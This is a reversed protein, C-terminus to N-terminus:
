APCIPTGDHCTAQKGDVDCYKGAACDADSRCGGAGPYVCYLGTVSGCCPSQVPACLGGPLATCDADVKCAAPVCARILRGLTGALGCIQDPACDADQACQDTACQNHPEMQVGGCFPVLPGQYCPENNPCPKDACCQDLDSACTTTKVPPTQCVHFGGPTIEVCKGDPCDADTHCDGNMSGGSGGTGSSSSASTSSSTTSSSSSTTTGGGTGTTTSTTTTTTGSSGSSASSSTTGGGGSGGTASNVSGGCAFALLPLLLSAFALHRM